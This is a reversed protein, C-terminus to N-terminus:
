CTKGNKDIYCSDSQFQNWLEMTKQLEDLYIKIEKHGKAKRKGELIIPASHSSRDELFFIKHAVVLKKLIDEAEYCHLCEKKHKYFEIM